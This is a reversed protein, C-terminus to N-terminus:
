KSPVNQHELVLSFMTLTICQAVRPARLSPQSVFPFFAFQFAGDPCSGKSSGSCLPLLKWAGRGVM